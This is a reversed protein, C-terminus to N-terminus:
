GMVGEDFMPSIESILLARPSLFMQPRTGRTVSICDSAPAAPATWPASCAPLKVVVNVALWPRSSIIGFMNLIAPSNVGVTNWTEARAIAAWASEMKPSWESTMDQREVPQAMSQELLTWSTISKARIAWAAVKRARTGKMWKKSPNRVDWSTCFISDRSKSWIRAM